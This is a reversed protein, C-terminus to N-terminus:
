ICHGCTALALLLLGGVQADSAALRHSKFGPVVPDRVRLASAM